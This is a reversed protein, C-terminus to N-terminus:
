KRDLIAVAHTGNENATWNTGMQPEVIMQPDGCSWTKLLEPRVSFFLKGCYLFITALICGFEFM